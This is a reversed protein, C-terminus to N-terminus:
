SLKYANIIELAADAQREDVFIYDGTNSNGSYVDMIGGDVGQKYSSIENIRLLEILMDAEVSTQAMYVKKPKWTDELEVKEDENYKNESRKLSRRSLLGLIFLVFFCIVAIGVFFCAVYKGLNIQKQVKMNSLIVGYIVSFIGSLMISTIMNLVYGKRGQYIGCASFMGERIMGFLFIMGGSLMILTEGLVKFIEEGMLLQVVILLASILYMVIFSVMGYRGVIQNQREDLSRKM